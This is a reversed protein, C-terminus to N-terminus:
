TYSGQAEAAEESEEKDQQTMRGGHSRWTVETHGGHSRRTVEMHGGHSRRTVEM